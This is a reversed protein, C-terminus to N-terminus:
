RPSWAAVILTIACRPARDVVVVFGDELASAEVFVLRAPAANYSPM